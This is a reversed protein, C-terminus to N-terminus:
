LSFGSLCIDNPFGLTLLSSLILTYGLYIVNVPNFHSPIDVLPQFKPIHCYNANFVSCKKVLSPVWTELLRQEFCSPVHLPAVKLYPFGREGFIRWPGCEYGDYEIGCQSFLFLLTQWYWLLFCHQYVKSTDQSRLRTFRVMGLRTNSMGKFLSIFFCAFVCVFSPFFIAERLRFILRLRRLIQTQVHSLM